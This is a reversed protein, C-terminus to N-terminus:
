TTSHYFENFTIFEVPRSEVYRLFRERFKPSKAKKPLRSLWHSNLESSNPSGKLLTRATPFSKTAFVECYIKLESPLWFALLVGDIEITLQAWRNRGNKVEEEILKRIDTSTARSFCSDLGHVRRLEGEAPDHALGIRSGSKPATSGDFYHISMNKM